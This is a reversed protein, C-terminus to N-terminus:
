PYRHHTPEPPVDGTISFPVDRFVLRAAVASLVWKPYRALVAPRSMLAWERGGAFDELHYLRLNAEPAYQRLTTMRPFTLPGGEHYEIGNVLLACHGDSVEAEMAQRAATLAGRIRPKTNVTTASKADCWPRLTVRGVALIPSGYRTEYRTTAFDHFVFSMPPGSTDDKLTNQTVQTV